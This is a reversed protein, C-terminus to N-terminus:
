LKFYMTCKMNDAQKQSQAYTSVFPSIEMAAM